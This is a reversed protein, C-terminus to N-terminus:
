AAETHVTQNKQRDAVSKLYEQIVPIKSIYKEYMDVYQSNKINPTGAYEGAQDSYEYRPTVLDGAEVWKNQLGMSNVRNTKNVKMEIHGIWARGSEDRCFTYRFRGDKSDFTEMFMKGYLENSVEWSGVPKAFVPSEKEQIVLQEPAIKGDRSISVDKLKVSDDTVQGYFTAEEEDRAIARATGAFVFEPNIDSLVKQVGQKSIGSLAKQLDSPLTVSEERYGKSFWRMVGNTAVYQPLYRWMSQSNSLYYSRAVYKDREEPIYAIVAVRGGGLEYCSSFRIKKNGGITVEYKPGLGARAIAGSDLTVGNFASGNISLKKLIRSSVKEDIQKPIGTNLNDNAEIGVMSTRPASEEVPAEVSSVRPINNEAINENGETVSAESQEVQPPSSVDQAEVSPNVGRVREMARRSVFPILWPTEIALGRAVPIQPAPPVPLSPPLPVTTTEQHSETITSTITRIANAGRDTAWIRAALGRPTNRFEGVEAAKGQFQFIHRGGSGVDKFLLKGAESDVPIRARGNADFKFDFARGQTDGSLTLLLRFDAHSQHLRALGARHMGRMSMEYYQKGDAGTILKAGEKGGGSLGLEDFDPHRTGWDQWGFRRNVDIMGHRQVAYQQPNLSIDRTSQITVTRTTPAQVSAEVSVVPAANVTSDGHLWAGLSKLFTQKGAGSEFVGVQDASVAAVAEQAATGVTLGVATGIVGMKWARKKRMADFLKDKANIGKEHGTLYHKAHFIRQDISTPTLGPYEKLRAKATARAIDLALREQAVSSVGSYSILDIKQRDSLQIRAEIECLTALVSEADGEDVATNLTNTLVIAPIMEHAYREMDARRPRMTEPVGAVDKGVAKERAHMRREEKFRKSEQAYALAGAGAGAAGFTAWAMARSFAAKSAITAVAAAAGVALPSAIAAGFRTSQMKELIRDATNFGAETRAGLRARGIVIEYDKKIDEVGEYHAINARIHTAVEVINDAFMTGQDLVNKDGLQQVAIKVNERLHNKIVDEQGPDTADIPRTAFDYLANYIQKQLRSEELVKRMEGAEQHIAAEVADSSFQEVVAKMTAEHQEETGGDRVYINGKEAIEKRAAVIEKQRYYERALNNKWINRGMDKWGKATLLSAKENSDVTLSADAADRAASELAHSVDAIVIKKKVGERKNYSPREM